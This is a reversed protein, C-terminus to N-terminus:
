LLGVGGGIIASAVSLVMIVALIIAIIKVTKQSM